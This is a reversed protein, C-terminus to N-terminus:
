IVHSESMSTGRPAGRAGAAGNRPKDGLKAIMEDLGRRPWGTLATDARDADQARTAVRNFQIASAGKLDDATTADPGPFIDAMSASSQALAEGVRGQTAALEDQPRSDTAMGFRNTGAIRRMAANMLEDTM